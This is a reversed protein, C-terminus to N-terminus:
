RLRVRSLIGVVRGPASDWALVPYRTDEGVTRALKAALTGEIRARPPDQDGVAQRQEFVRGPGPLLRAISASARDARAAVRADRLSSGRAQRRGLCAGRDDRLARGCRPRRRCPCATASVADLVPEADRERVPMWTLLMDAFEVRSAGRWARRRRHHARGTTRFLRGAGRRRSRRSAGGAREHQLLDVDDGLRGTLVRDIAGRTWELAVSRGAFRARIRRARCAPPPHNPVTIRQRRWFEVEAARGGHSPPRSARGAPSGVRRGRLPTTSHDDALGLGAVRFASRARCGTPESRLHEHRRVAPAIDRCRSVRLADPAVSAADEPRSSPRM